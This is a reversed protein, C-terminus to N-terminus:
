IVLDRTKGDNRRMASSPFSTTYVSDHLRQRAAGFAALIANSRRM